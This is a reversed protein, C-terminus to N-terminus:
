ETRRLALLTIDDFQIEGLIHDNIQTKIKHILDEASLSAGGVLDQLRNKTFAEGTKDRADIVGDTYVLLIDGRELKISHAKFKLDPYLGVAPGTPDLKSKIGDKDIIIPPEHGGNIYTLTDNAPDLIAYFITAFMGAKEHTISIYNNISLITKQLIKAPDTTPNSVELHGDSLAKGSLVRIFSRFLAMFLAAGVGKDCVDAIVLGVKKQQGLTFVDYFDGAVHRAAQFYTALEWGKPTPLVTPLFGAQIQRGIELEREALRRARETQAFLLAKEIAMGILLFGLASLLIVLPRVFQFITGTYFFIGAALGIYAGTIVLSGVTLTLSNFRVSLITLLLLLCIEILIMPSASLERLFSGALINQLVLTHIVGAPLLNQPETTRTRYKKEVSESIVAIKGSLEKQLKALNVTNESAQYIESYSYHPIRSWSQPINLIINGSKDIPIVIDRRGSGDVPQANKLTISKGPTVIVNAHSVELYDCLARLALSPYIVDQYKVLLPLRRIIGDPDPTLNLFGVGKAAFSLAPYPARLKAGSWFYQSRGDLVAPWKNGASHPDNGAAPLAKEIEPQKSLRGFSLGYYVNGAMKTADILPQDDSDSIRDTFIFDILQASVKMTALNRIIQAHQPRSFYYSADIHIVADPQNTKIPSLKTRLVFLRDLIKSDWIAFKEQFLGYIIYSVILAVLVLLTRTQLKRKLSAEM